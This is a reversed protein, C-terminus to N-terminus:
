RDDWYRSEYKQDWERRRAEEQARKERLRRAREEKKRKVERRKVIIYVTLWALLAVSLVVLVKKIISATADQIGFISLFGGKAIDTAAVASFVAIRNGGEFLEIEGIKQGAELPARVHPDLMIETSLVSESAEIPVTGAILKEPIAEVKNVAGRRVKIKGLSTGEELVTVTKYNEFGWDLLAISDAFRGLDGSKLVVAIFATGDREAASVLCGQAHSTYGTKIGICDKYKCYRLTGNVYIRTKDQEDWLLRNTNKLTRPGNKNTARMTYQATSVLERFLDSKMCEAAILALDRATSVHLPDHLGHPNVFHSQTAGCLLARENMMDAFAETNGAMAIALAQASDNSSETMMAYLLERVSVEEGEKLGINNGETKPVSVDITIIKELDLRELALLCTLIKTTSAPYLKRDAAKEFLVEGTVMDALIAGEAELRPEPTLAAAQLTSSFLTILLFIAIFLRYKKEM